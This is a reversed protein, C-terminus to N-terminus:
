LDRTDHAKPVVILALIYAIIGPLVGSFITIMLYGARFIVPDTNLYEGLGGFLGGFVKDTNSRTLRKEM